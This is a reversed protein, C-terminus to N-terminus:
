RCRARCGTGCRVARSSRGRTARDFSTEKSTACPSTNTTMPETRSPCTWGPGSGSGASRASRPCPSSSPSSTSTHRSRVARVQPAVPRRHDELVETQQGVAFHDVVHGIPSSTRPSPRLLSRRELAWSITSRTPRAPYRLVVVGVLEGAAHLLADAQGASQGAVRPAATRRATRPGRGASGAPCASRPSGVGRLPRFVITNMVWSRASASLSPSRMRIMRSPSITCIPVGSSTTPHGPRRSRASKVLSTGLRVHERELPDHPRVVAGRRWWGPSATPWITLSAARVTSSGSPGIGRRRRRRCRDAEDVVLFDQPDDHGLLGGSM